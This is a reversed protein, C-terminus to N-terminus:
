KREKCCIDVWCRNQGCPHDSSSGLNEPCKFCQEINDSNFLFRNAEGITYSFGNANTAYHASERKQIMEKTRKEYYERIKSKEM